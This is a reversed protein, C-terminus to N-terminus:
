PKTGSGKSKEPVFISQVRGGQAGKATFNAQGTALNVVLMTGRMVNKDKTLVVTGTLTITRKPLEYVGADGSARGSSSDFLVHGVADVRNAQGDKVTVKVKDARLKFTGQTVVVNGEYTGVNAKLDGIFHDANVSIPANTDHKGLGLDPGKAGPAVTAQVQPQALTQAYAPAALLLLAFPLLALTRM